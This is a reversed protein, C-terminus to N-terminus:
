LEKGEAQARARRLVDPVMAIRETCCAGGEGGGGGGGGEPQREAACHACAQAFTAEIREYTALSAQQEGKLAQAFALQFLGEESTPNLELLAQLLEIARTAAGGALKGTQAKGFTVLNAAALLSAKEVLMRHAPADPNALGRLETALPVSLRLLLNDKSGAAHQQLGMGMSAAATEFFGVLKYQAPGTRLSIAPM